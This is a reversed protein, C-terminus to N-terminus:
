VDWTDMFIWLYLVSFERSLEMDVRLVCLLDVEEILTDLGVCEEISTIM